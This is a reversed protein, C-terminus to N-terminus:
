MARDDTQCFGNEMFKVFENLDIQGDSNKDYAAIMQKCADMNSGERFGLNCLARQLERPDIFGDRNEDFVCFAEKREGLSPEKEDFLVSLDDSDMFEKLKDGQPDCSFGLNAMVMEVDERRMKVDGKEDFCFQESSVSVNKIREDIELDPHRTESCFNATLICSNVRHQFFSLCSQYLDQCGIICNPVRYFFLFGAMDALPSSTLSDPSPKDM